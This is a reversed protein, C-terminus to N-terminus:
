HMAFRKGFTATECLTHHEDDRTRQHVDQEIWQLPGRHAVWSHMPDHKRGLHDDGIKTPGRMQDQRRVVHCLNDSTLRGM